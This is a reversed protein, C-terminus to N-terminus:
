QRYNVAYTFPLTSVTHVEDLAAEQRALLEGIEGDGVGGQALPNKLPSAGAVVARHM